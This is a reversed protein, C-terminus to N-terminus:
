FNLFFNHQECLHNFYFILSTTGHPLLKAGQPNTGKREAMSKRFERGTQRLLCVPMSTSVAGGNAAQM